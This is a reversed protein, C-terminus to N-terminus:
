DKKTQAARQEILEALANPSEDLLYHGAGLIELTVDSWGKARLAEEMAPMLPGVGHKGGVLTLPLRIPENHTRNFEANERTARYFGLGARLQAPAAYAGAYRRLKAENM